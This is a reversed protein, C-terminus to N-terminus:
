NEFIEIEVRRNLQRGIETTNPAIPQQPGYGYAKLREASIGKAVLYDKVSQTRRQSLNINYEVTGKSDTHGLIMIKTNPSQKLLLYLKDLTPSSSSKLTAKDFDFYIDNLLLKEGVALSGLYFNKDLEELTRKTKFQNTIPSITPFAVQIKQIIIISGDNLKVSYATGGLTDNALVLANDLQSIINPDKIGLEEFEVKRINIDNTESKVEGHEIRQLAFGGKDVPMLQFQTQDIQFNAKDGDQTYNSIIGASAFDNKLVLDRLSTLPILFFGGISKALSPKPINVVEQNQIKMPMLEDKPRANPDYTKIREATKIQVYPNITVLGLDNRTAMYDIKNLPSKFTYEVPSVSLSSVIAKGDVADGFLAKAQYQPIALVPTSKDIKLIKKGAPRISLGEETQVIEFIKGNINVMKIGEKMEFKVLPNAKIAAIEEDSLGPLYAIPIVFVENEPAKPSLTYQGKTQMIPMLMGNDLRLKLEKDNIIKSNVLDIEKMGLSSALSKLNVLQQELDIETLSAKPISLDLTNVIPVYGPASVEVFYKSEMPLTLQGMGTPGTKLSATEKGKLQDVFRILADLPEKEANTVKTNMLAVPKPRFADGLKTKVVDASKSFPSNYTVYYIYEGQADVSCYGEWKESNIPQNIVIPETWNIWTNDLRRSMWIDNLGYGGERDSSFYLTENDSALFPIEESYKKTNVPYNLSIPKTYENSDIAFSVYIDNITGGNVESFSLLLIKADNSFFFNTVQGKNLRNFGKIKIKNPLSYINGVKYLRSV